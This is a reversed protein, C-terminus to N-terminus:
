TQDGQFRQYAREMAITIYIANQYEMKDINFGFGSWDRNNAAIYEGLRSKLQDLVELPTDYSIILNTSEWRTKM